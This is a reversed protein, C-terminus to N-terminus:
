YGTDRTCISALVQCPGNAFRRLHRHTKRRLMLALRRQRCEASEESVVRDGRGTSTRGPPQRRLFEHTRGLALATVAVEVASLRLLELTQQLVPVPNPLNSPPM